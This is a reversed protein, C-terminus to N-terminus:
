CDNSTASGPRACFQSPLVEDGSRKSRGAGLEEFRKESKQAKKKEVSENSGRNKKGLREMLLLRPRVRDVREGGL